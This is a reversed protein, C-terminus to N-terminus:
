VSVKTTGNLLEKSKNGYFTGDINCNKCPSLTRNNKLSSRFKQLAMNNLWIDKLSSRMVNGFRVKKSWDQCCLLVDGDYHINMAYFPMNCGNSPSEDTFNYGARNSLKSFGYGEDEGYYYHQLLYKNNDIGKFVEKFRDVQHKGDYMSVFVKDVGAAYLESAKNRTLRDGNTVIHVNEQWPMETKIISIAEILHNYLLPEGFGCFVIRNEYGEKALDRVVKRVVSLDMHLNQNPYGKSRPCFDCTLNCLETCMLDVSMLSTFPNDKSMRSEMPSFMSYRDEKIYASEQM